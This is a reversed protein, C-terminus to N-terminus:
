QILTKQPESCSAHSRAPVNPGHNELQTQSGPLAEAFDPLSV